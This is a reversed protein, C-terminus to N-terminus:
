RTATLGARTCSFSALEAGPDEGAAIRATERGLWASFM